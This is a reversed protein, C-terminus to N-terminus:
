QNVASVEVGTTNFIRGDREIVLQGNVIRKNASLSTQENAPSSVNTPTNAVDQVLRVGEGNSRANDTYILDDFFGVCGATYESTSNASWYMIMEGFSGVNTAGYRFGNAVLMVAGADEMEQWEDAYYTNTTWDAASPTFSLGSPLTWDDPLLVYGRVNNVTAKGCLNTCNARINLMYAWESLTLTRWLNAVNGGNSIPNAGWEHFPFYASENTNTKVPDNGTGWGFLDIWGTYASSINANRSGITDYQNKAFRWTDTSAKYQLNGQSFIVQEGLANITFKGCLAGETAWISVSCLAAVFLSYFKKMDFVTQAAFNSFFILM